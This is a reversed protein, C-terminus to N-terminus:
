KSSNVVKLTDIKKTSAKRKPHAARKGKLRGSDLEEVLRNLTRSIHTQIRIREILPWTQREGETLLAMVEQSNLAALFKTPSLFRKSPLINIDGIYTQSVLSVYGDIIKNVYADKSIPRQILHAAALGWEKMTGLATQSVTHILGQNRKESTIFPLALPNTQSVIFHNVGYLRSLRKMPLDESLSGDVWKRSPLYPVRQGHVNRAALSVPPFVGPICCSALVAERLMVNPSTVANLLRSKQHAESPTISINIKLGSVQYAEEFTLDPIIREIIRILDQKRLNRRKGPALNTVISKIDEEFQLFEPQFIEGIDEYARSGAVAAILAGGSSGSIVDPILKQEWLAKLVGVHFFLYTGSGSFMLASQGFCLHARHFFDIKEATTIGKVRPRALHELASSVEDVYDVILQKTGFKARQYLSSSGMGGLNGHIGENLTFLLGHNDNDRRMARLINLRREIASFDYRRSKERSKWVKAGSREDHAIAAERWQEYTEAEAMKRELARSM